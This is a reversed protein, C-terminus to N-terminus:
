PTDPGVPCGLRREALGGPRADRFRTASPHRARAAMPRNPSSVLIMRRSERGQVPPSRRIRDAARTDRCSDRSWVPPVSPPTRSDCADCWCARLKVCSRWTQNHSVESDPTFLDAYSFHDFVVMAVDAPVAFLRHVAHRTEIALLDLDGTVVEVAEPLEAEGCFIWFAASTFISRRRRDAWDTPPRGRDPALRAVEHARRNWV